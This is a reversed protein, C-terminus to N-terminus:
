EIEEDITLVAYKGVGALTLCIYAYDQTGSYNWTFGVVHGEDDTQIDTFYDGEAFDDWGLCAGTSACSSNYIWNACSSAAAPYDDTTADPDIWCNELRYVSGQILPILGITFARYTKGSSLITLDGEDNWRTDQLYGLGGNYIDGSSDLATSLPIRNTYSVAQDVAKVYIEVNGTVKPIAIVGKSYYSM